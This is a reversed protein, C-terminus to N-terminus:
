RSEIQQLLQATLQSEPDIQEALHLAAVAGAEDGASALYIARNGLMLAHAMAVKRAPEDPLRQWQGALHDLNWRTSPLPKATDGPADLRFTLGTPIWEYGAGIGQEMDPGLYAGGGEAEAAAILANIAAVYANQLLDVRSPDAEFGKPDEEWADRQQRYASLPLRAAETLDPYWRELANLYWDRRMLEVDIVHLDPRKGLVHQFYLSPSYFQWDRTLVTGGPAVDATLNDFYDRHYWYNSRNALPLNLILALVPLLWPLLAVVTLASRTQGLRRSIALLSLHLGWLLPVILMLYPAMYYADQDDEIAYLIAYALGAGAGTLLFLTLRRQQKWGWWLGLGIFPLALPSYQWFALSIGFRLEAWLSAPALSLNSRYQAASIHRWFSRLTDPDGWNLIPDAAARLPLIVYAGLGLVLFLASVLFLRLSLRRRQWFLWLAIAPALLATTALHAGLALGYALAALPLLYDSVRSWLHSADSQAINSWAFLCALCIALLFTNLTYVETTTAWPWFSRGVALTALVALILSTPPASPGALPTVPRRSAAKGKALPAPAPQPAPVQRLWFWLGAVTAAAMLASLLNLRWAPERVPLHVALSAAALWTPFGPAHAVGRSFAALVLEGADTGATTPALTLLYLILAFTGILIAPLHARLRTMIIIPLPWNYPPSNLVRPRLRFAM